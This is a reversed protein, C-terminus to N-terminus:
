DDFDAGLGSLIGKRTLIKFNLRFINDTYKLGGGEPRTWQHYYQFEVVLKPTIYGLGTRWRLPDIQETDSRWIPEIDTFAYWTKPTWAREGSALPVDIRTQNRIRRVDTWDGTDENWTERFEYRTWNYYRVKGSTQGMFKAGVFPRLEYTNGVTFKDTFVNILVAWLQVHPTPQYYAGAALYYSRYEADPKSVLGVYGIGLWDNGLPYSPFATIRYENQVNSTATEDSQATAPATPLSLLVCWLVAVWWLPLRATVAPRLRGIARRVTQQARDELRKM